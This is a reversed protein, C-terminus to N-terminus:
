WYDIQKWICVYPKIGMRKEKRKIGTNYLATGIMFKDHYNWGNTPTFHIQNKTNSKISYPIMKFSIPKINKAIGSTRYLHNQFNFDTTNM